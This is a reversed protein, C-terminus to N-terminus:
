TLPSDCREFFIGPATRHITKGDNGAFYQHRKGFFAQDVDYKELSLLDGDVFMIVFEEIFLAFVDTNVCKKVDALIKDPQASPISHGSDGYYPYYLDLYEPTAV